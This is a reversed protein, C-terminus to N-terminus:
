NCTDVEHIITAERELCGSKDKVKKKKKKKRIM